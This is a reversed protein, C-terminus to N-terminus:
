RGPLDAPSPSVASTAGRWAALARYALDAANSPIVDATPPRQHEACSSRPRPHSTPCKRPNRVYYLGTIRADEIRLAMVGDIEGDLRVLLAPNGNVVTPETTLTSDLKGIGGAFMRSVREAGTVPRLAAHKIGGGDSM